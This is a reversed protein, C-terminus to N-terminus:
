EKLLSNGSPKQEVPFCFRERNEQIWTKNKSQHKSDLTIEKILVTENKYIQHEDNKKNKCEVVLNKLLQKNYGNEAFM